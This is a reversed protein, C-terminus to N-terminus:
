CLHQVVKKKKKKDIPCYFKNELGKQFTGYISYIIDM